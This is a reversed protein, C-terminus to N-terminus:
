SPAMGCMAKFDCYHCHKDSPTPAFPTDRDFLSRLKCNLAEMVAENHSTYDYLPEGSIKVPQLGDTFIKKMAYLMPWIAGTFHRDRAHMNCYLFLQLVGKNHSKTATSETLDNLDAVKFEDNGTKYDVIRVRGDTMEDIRDISGRINYSRTDDLPLDTFVEREGEVFYFPVFAKERDFLAIVFERILEGLIKTEGTLPTLNEYEENDGIQSPLNNYLKNISSTIISDLKVTESKLREIVDATIEVKAASGRMRKYSFELVEHVIRGFRSEDVYDKMEEEARVNEVYSFYFKLPCQLYTNIASASLYRKNDATSLFCNIRSMIRDDKVVSFPEGARTAPVNFCANFKRISDSPFMYLLQYLYRSMEGGKLGSTRGDYLLKVNSARSILRYFYYAYICEQFEMTSLGYCQRLVNPIFSRSYHKRPFIRENMSLLIINKFDLARTELVGMIQLGSLPEGVFNVTESNVTREILHFFTNDRMTIGYKETARQLQEVSQRYRTVFGTELANNNDKPAKALESLIYETLESVYKFVNNGSMLDEVPFFITKLDPYNEAVYDSPILFMRRTEIDKKLAECSKAAFSVILGHTIVDKVDEYFFHWLGRVKKARLHMSMVNRMLVAVSTHRLPYGMTINVTSIEPPVSHLLDVFLEESPLVIATDVANDPDAISGDAAMQRIINGALKVQGVNSPVSVIEIDPLTVSEDSLDYLSPFAKVYKRIFHTASCNEKVEEPLNYDWYFDAKGIDRLRSFIHIESTSLVNFGVFIIRSYPLEDATMASLKEAVERYQMGSYCLGRSALSNKVAHYLPDLIEWLQVFSDRNVRPEGEKTLHIWFQEPSYSQLDVDWYRTIVEKQEDTLFDTAIERVNKVNRFLQHADALYRDVDNFDNVLMDGWFVFKDFDETEKSLKAYETFLTFLLDYRSAEVYDSFSSIFESITIVAPEFFPTGSHSCQSLYQRFFTGSRKNPFVFCYDILRDKERDHYVEAISQLFPRM